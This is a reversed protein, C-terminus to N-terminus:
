RTQGAQKLHWLSQAGFHTSVLMALYTTVSTCAELGEEHRMILLKLATRVQDCKCTPWIPALLQASSSPWTFSGYKPPSRVFNPLFAWWFSTLGPGSLAIALRSNQQSPNLVNRHLLSSEQLSINQFTQLILSFQHRPMKRWHMSPHKTQLLEQFSKSRILIIRVQTPHLYM